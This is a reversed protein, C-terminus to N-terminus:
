GAVIRTAMQHTSAFAKSYDPANGQPNNMAGHEMAALIAGQQGIGHAHLGHEMHAELEHDPLMNRLGQPCFETVEGVMQDENLNHEEGLFVQQRNWSVCYLLVDATQNWMAMWAFSVAMAVVIAGLASANKDEIYHSSTKDNFIDLKDQLVMCLWGSFLSISLSGFLEYMLMGGHLHALSGGSKVLRQFADDCCQFFGDEGDYGGGSLILQTFGNKSYKGFQQELCASLLSLCGKVNTIAPDEGAGVGDSHDTIRQIFSLVFHSVLRFPRLVFIVPAGLFIAGMDRTFANFAGSIIKTPNTGVKVVTEPVYDNRGLGPGKKEVPVILHKAGGGDEGIVTGYRMGYNADVGAVRVEVKKGQGKRMAQMLKPEKSKTVEVETFYWDIVVTAIIYHGLQIYVEMIVFMGVFYYWFEAHQVWHKKYVRQLGQIPVGNISIESYDLYGLSGVMPLGYLVFFMVLACFAVGQVLAFGLLTWGKRYCCDCAADILGVCEDIHSMSNMTVCGTVGSFFIIIAGTIVSYIKAEEGVYVSSIPNLECYTSGVDDMDMVVALFFFIGAALGLLTAMVMTFFILPGACKQLAYMYLAGLVIATLASILFLLWCDM